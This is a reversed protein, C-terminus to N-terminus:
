SWLLSSQNCYTIMEFSIMSGDYQPLKSMANRAKLKMWVKEGWKLAFAKLWYNSKDAKELV